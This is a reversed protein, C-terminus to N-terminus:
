CRLLIEWAFQPRTFHHKKGKLKNYLKKQVNSILLLLKNDNFEFYLTAYYYHVNFLVYMKNSLLYLTLHCLKSFLIFYKLFNVVFYNLFIVYHILYIAM